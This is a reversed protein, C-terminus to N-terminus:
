EVTKDNLNVYKNFSEKAMNRLSDDRFMIQEKIRSAINNKFLINVRSNIRELQSDNELKYKKIINLSFNICVEESLLLEISENISETEEKLKDCYQNILEESIVDQDFNLDLFNEKMRKKKEEIENNILDNIVKKEKYLVGLLEEKKYDINQEEFFSKFFIFLKNIELSVCNDTSNKLADLNREMELTLSNKFIEKNKEKFMKNYDIDM